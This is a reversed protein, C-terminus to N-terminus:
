HSTEESISPQIGAGVKVGKVINKKDGRALVELTKLYKEKVLCITKDKKKM